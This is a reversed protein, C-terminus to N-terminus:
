YWEICPNIPLGYGGADLRYSYGAPVPFFMTVAMGVAPSNVNAVIMSPSGGPGVVVSINEGVGMYNVSCNVFMVTSAPNTYVIGTTRGGMPHPMLNLATTQVTGDPFM